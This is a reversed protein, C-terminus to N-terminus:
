KQGALLPQLLAAGLYEQPPAPGGSSNIFGCYASGTAAYQFGFNNQPVGVAPSSSCANFYDPNWGFTTWSQCKYVEGLASPCNSYSEFGPNPVINQASSDFSFLLAAAVPILTTKKM